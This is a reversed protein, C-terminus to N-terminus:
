KEEIVITEILVDEEPQSPEGWRNYRVPTDSIALVIEIGEVVQGFVTYNPNNNLQKSMKGNCVFFQSGNTNPGSNAMAVIGPDYPLIPPLEDPFAYGPGGMGTGQPCGTQIMFDKIIRHFKIGNYFADRALFVFNNVTIPARDALLEIKFDGRNTKVVAWYKKDPDLLMEPPAQYTKRESTRSLENENSGTTL